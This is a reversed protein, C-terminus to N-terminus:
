PDTIFSCTLSTCVDTHLLLTPLVKTRENELEKRFQGVVKKELENINDHIASLDVGAAGAASPLLQDGGINFGSETGECLFRGKLILKGLISKTNNADVITAAIDHTDGPHSTFEICSVIATGVHSNNMYLGVKSLPHTLSYTHTLVYSHTLLPTAVKINSGVLQAVAVKTTRCNVGVKLNSLSYEVPASKQRWTTGIGIHLSHTLLCVLYHYYLTSVSTWRHKPNALHALLVRIISLDLSKAPCLTWIVM